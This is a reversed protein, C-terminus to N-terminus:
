ACQNLLALLDKFIIDYDFTILIMIIKWGCVICSYYYTTDNDQFQYSGEDCSGSGETWFSAVGCRGCRGVDPGHRLPQCTIMPAQIADSVPHRLKRRWLTDPSSCSALVVFGSWPMKIGMSAGLWLCRGFTKSCLINISVAARFRYKHKRKLVAALRILFVSGNEMNEPLVFLSFLVFISLWYISM